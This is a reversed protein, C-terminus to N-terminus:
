FLSSIFDVIVQFFGKKTGNDSKSLEKEKKECESSCYKENSDTEFESLCWMCKKM